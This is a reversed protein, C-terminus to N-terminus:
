DRVYAPEPICRDYQVHILLSSVVQMLRVAHEIYRINRETLNGVSLLFRVLAFDLFRARILAVLQPLVPYIM